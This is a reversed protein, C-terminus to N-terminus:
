ARFGTTETSAPPCVKTTTAMSQDAVPSEGLSLSRQREFVGQAPGSSRRRNTSSACTGSPPRNAPRAKRRRLRALRPRVPRDGPRHDADIEKWVVDRGRRREVWLTDNSAWGPRCGTEIETLERIHGGEADAIEVVPGKKSDTSVLALRKGDPSITLSMVQREVM